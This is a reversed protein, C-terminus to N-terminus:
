RRVCGRVEDRLKPWLTCLGDIVRQIHDVQEDIFLNLKSRIGELIAREEPFNPHYARALDEIDWFGGRPIDQAIRQLRWHASLNREKLDDNITQELADLLGLVPAWRNRDKELRQRVRDRLRRDQENVPPQLAVAVAQYARERFVYIRHLYNDLYYMVTRVAEVLDERQSADALLDRTTALEWILRDMDALQAAAESHEGEHGLRYQILENEANSM